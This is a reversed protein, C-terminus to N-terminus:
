KNKDIWYFIIFSLLSVTYADTPTKENSPANFNTIISILTKIEEEKKSEIEDEWGKSFWTFDKELQIIINRIITENKDVKLSNSPSSSNSKNGSNNLSSNSLSSNSNNLSNNNSDSGSSNTLSNSTIRNSSPSSITSSRAHTVSIKSTSNSLSNSNNNQNNNNNTNKTISNTKFHSFSARKQDELPPSPSQQFKNIMQSINAPSTTSLKADSFRRQTTPSTKTTSEFIQIKDAVLQKKREENKQLVSEPVEILGKSRSSAMMATQSFKKSESPKSKWSTQETM